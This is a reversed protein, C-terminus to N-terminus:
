RGRGYMDRLMRNRAMKQDVEVMGTGKGVKPPPPVDSDILNSEKVDLSCIYEAKDNMNNPVALGYMGVTDPLGMRLACNHIYAQVERWAQEHLTPALGMEKHNPIAKIPVRKAIEQQRKIEKYDPGTAYVGTRFFNENKRRNLKLDM